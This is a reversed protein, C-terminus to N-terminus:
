GRGFVRRVGRVLTGLTPTLDVRKEEKVEVLPVDKLRTRILENLDTKLTEAVKPNAYFELGFAVCVLEKGAKTEVSAGAVDKPRQMEIISMYKDINFIPGDVARFYVVEKLPVEIEGSEDGSEATEFLISSEPFDDKLVLQTVFGYRSQGGRTYLYGKKWRKFFNSFKQIYWEM